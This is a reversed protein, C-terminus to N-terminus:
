SWKLRYKSNPQNWSMGDCRMAALKTAEYRLWAVLADRGEKTLSKAGAIKLEALPESM